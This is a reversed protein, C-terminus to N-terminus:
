AAAIRDMAEALRVDRATVGGADHSSLVVTVTGYVNTWEPHHNMAEAEFGARLMFSMAEPFSRFQFTKTLADGELEWGPLSVLAREIQDRDLTTQM